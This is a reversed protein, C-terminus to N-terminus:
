IPMRCDNRATLRGRSWRPTSRTGASGPLGPGILHLGCERSPHEFPFGTLVRLQWSLILQAMVEPGICLRNGKFAGPAFTVWNGTTVNLRGTM